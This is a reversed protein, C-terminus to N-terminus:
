NAQAAEVLKAISTALPIEVALRPKAARSVADSSPAAIKQRHEIAELAVLGVDCLDRIDTFTPSLEAVRPALSPIDRLTKEAALKSKQLLDKLASIDQSSVSGGKTENLLTEVGNAFHWSTLSEPRSIDVWGVLASHRTFQPQFTGRQYRKVPETLDALTDLNELQSKTANEGAFQRLLAYRNREGQLGIEALRLDLIDLRRYLDPVSKVDAPSWLREAVAATRPWLRSDITEPTIWEAWMCAEGGLVLAREKESLASDDILPDHGYHERAPQILDIYYGASIVAGHGAKVAEVLRKPGRWAHVITEPPLDPHLIEDWGMMNKGMATVIKQIRQNFYAHLGENNKLGRDAIFKQINANASWHKGDLEDGGIHFYDDPFLLSIERFLKELFVYVQENTPDLAPSFIGWKDILHYPGPQSGLEPYATLIASTHGPVDFEPVVRIGRDGAYRVIERLQDQTYFKGESAKAQLLPWVKSEVRFGQDDSLHFHLVNLKVLAMGDIERKITEVPMFHRATDILLGRWRFRPRDHIEVQPLTWLGDTSPSLLQQLTVAAHLAGRWTPCDVVVRENEIKLSYSEDDNLRPWSEGTAAAQCRVVLTQNAENEGFSFAGDVERPFAFGTRREWANLLRTYAAAVRADRSGPGILAVRWAPTLAIPTPAVGARDSSPRVESVVPVVNLSSAPKEAALAPVSAGACGIVFTFFVHSLRSTLFM